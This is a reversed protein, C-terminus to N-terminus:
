MYAKLTFFRNDDDVETFDFEIGGKARRAIDIFGVGAGKSGEPTEGKLTEKWLAKLGKKDLSKINELSVKLRDADAIRIKNGCSIFVKGDEQGVTLIGFRLQADNTEPEAEASYRIVNQVQEVFVSFASKSTKRDIDDLELKKKMAGGIGMLIDETMYGCYCFLIGNDQLYKKFKMMDAALM